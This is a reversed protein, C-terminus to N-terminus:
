CPPLASGSSVSISGMILCNWFRLCCCQSPPTINSATQKCARLSQALREPLSAVIVHSCTLWCPRKFLHITYFSITYSQATYKKKSNTLSRAHPQGGKSCCFTQCSYNFTASLMLQLVRTHHQKWIEQYFHSSDPLPMSFLLTAVHKNRCPKAVAKRPQKAMISNQSSLFIGYHLISTTKQIGHTILGSRQEEEEFRLFHAAGSLVCIQLCYTQVPM